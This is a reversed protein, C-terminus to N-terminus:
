IFKKVFKDYKTRYADETCKINKVADIVENSTLLVPDPAETELDINFGRLNDRYDELDYPFFIMPKREDSNLKKVCAYDFMISSYDTILVDTILYLDSISPVNTLNIVRPVRRFNPIRQRFSSLIKSM